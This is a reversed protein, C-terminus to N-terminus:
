KSVQQKKPYVRFNRYAKKEFTEIITPPVVGCSITGASSIVKEHDGILQLLKGQATKKRDEAKKEDLVAAAYQEILVKIDDRDRADMVKGPEAHSHLQKLVDLDEPLTVRPYIGAELDKWFQLIKRRIAAGVGTDRLRILPEIRNGGVFVIIVAWSLESIELQHQVQIEIHPPAEYGYEDVYIWENKFVLSDVNKVEMIGPGFQGFAIRLENGDVQDDTVGVIEYDFSSGMRWEHVRMYENKHRIKVGFLRAARKAIADEIEKGIETRESPKFRSETDGHKRCALEFATESRGYGFLSSSETSTVDTARATLWAYQDDFHLIERQPNM